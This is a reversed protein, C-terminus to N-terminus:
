KDNIANIYDAINSLADSNLLGILGSKYNVTSFYLERDMIFLSEINQCNFDAAFCHTFHKGQRKNIYAEIDNIANERITTLQAQYTNM